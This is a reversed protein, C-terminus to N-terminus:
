REEFESCTPGNPDVQQDRDECYGNGNCHKCDGCKEHQFM